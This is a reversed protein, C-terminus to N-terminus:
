ERCFWRDNYNGSSNKVAASYCFNFAKAKISEFSVSLSDGKYRFDLERKSLRDYRISSFHLTDSMQPKQDKWVQLKVVAKDLQFGTTNDISIDVNFFRSSSGNTERDATVQLLIREPWDNRLRLNNKTNRDISQGRNEEITSILSDIDMLPVNAPRAAANSLPDARDWKVRTFNFILFTGAAIGTIYLSRKLWSSRRAPKIFPTAPQTLNGAPNEKKPAILGSAPILKRYAAYSIWENSSFLWIKIQGPQAAAVIWNELEEKSQAERVGNTGDTFLFRDM